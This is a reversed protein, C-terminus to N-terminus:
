RISQETSSSQSERIARVIKTDYDKGNPRTLRLRNKAVCAHISDNIMVMAKMTEEGKSLDVNM